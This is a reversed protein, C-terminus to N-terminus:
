AASTETETGTSSFNDFRFMVSVIFWLTLFPRGKGGEETREKLAAAENKAGGHNDCTYGDGGRGAKGVAAACM